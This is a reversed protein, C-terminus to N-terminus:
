SMRVRCLAILFLIVSGILGLSGGIALAKMLSPLLSDASEAAQRATLMLALSALTFPVALSYLWCFAKFLRHEMLEAHGRAILAAVAPVAWGLLNMHAHVPRLSFDGSAGMVVGLVMGMLLYLFAMRILFAYM